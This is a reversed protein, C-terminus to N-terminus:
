AEASCANRDGAQRLGSLDPRGGLRRVTSSAAATALTGARIPDEDDVLAAAMGAVFADGAGTPDVVAVDRDYPFVHHDGRWAVVNGIRPVELAVIRPGASLLREALATADSVSAVPAGAMSQAETADARLVDILSVLERGVGPPLAGDAITRAGGRRAIRAAAVVTRAPQQLQISVIHAARLLEGCREVDGVTVLSADPIDEFLRRKARTDVLDLLLATRGRRTVAATDIGDHEAQRLMTSGEADEGLVGVLAVPAGLQRLGVAQNAGKGGLQELRRLIATSGGEQPLDEVQLVIDRGM